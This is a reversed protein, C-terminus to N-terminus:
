IEQETEQENASGMFWDSYDRLDLWNWEEQGIKLQHGDQYELMIMALEGGSYLLYRIKILQGTLNVYYNGPVPAKNNSM